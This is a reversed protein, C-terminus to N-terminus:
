KKEELKFGEYKESIFDLPMTLPVIYTPRLDACYDKAEQYTPGEYQYDRVDELWDCGSCSGYNGFYYFLRKGDTLVAKYEGQYGGDEEFSVLELDNIVALVEGYNDAKFRTKNDMGPKDNQSEILELVESKLLYEKEEGILNSDHRFINPDIKM